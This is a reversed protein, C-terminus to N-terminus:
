LLNENIQGGFSRATKATKFFTASIRAPGMPISKVAASTQADAGEGAAQAADPVGATALLSM